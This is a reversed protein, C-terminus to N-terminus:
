RIEIQKLHSIVQSKESFLRPNLWADRSLGQAAVRGMKISTM